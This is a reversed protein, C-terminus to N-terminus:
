GGNRSRDEVGAAKGEREGYVAKAVDGVGFSPVVGYKTKLEKALVPIVKVNWLRKSLQEAYLRDEGCIRITLVVLVVVDPYSKKIQFLINEEIQEIKSTSLCYLFVSVGEAMLKHITQETKEISKQDMDMGNIEYWACHSGREQYLIYSDMGIREFDTGMYSGIEEILVTKGSGIKGVVAVKTNQHICKINEELFFEEIAAQLTSFEQDTGEFFLDVGRNGPNYGDAIAQLIDRVKEQLVAQMYERRSLVSSNSIRIWEGCENLFYYSIRNINTNSIIKIKNRDM